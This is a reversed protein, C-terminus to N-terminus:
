GRRMTPPIEDPDVIVEVVFPHHLPFVKSLAKELEEETRCTVSEAGLSSAFGAVDLPTHYKTGVSKGIHVKMGKDVMDLAQNNMVIFLVPANSEVATAVETGHMFMCGDGTLCAIPEEPAALKAGVAYGIGHGMAGFVDDFYFGCSQKIDYHKIAYFTHSGDDGFLTTNPPLSRNITKVAAVSSLYGSGNETEQEDVAAAQEGSLVYSPADTLKGPPLAQLLHNLNAKLDGTVATTKVNMARGIFTPDADFHIIQEPFHEPKWGATSMDSLKSGCVILTDIGSEVYESAADTGGLGYAGLSLPHKSLFTGKGGPTTAVPLQFAEAFQEIEKYAGSSHVGKGLLLLPREARSILTEVEPLKTSIVHDPEPIDISFPEADALLVDAPISLHVPGKVGSFAERLAHQLIPKVLDARDIRGSYKTVSSFMATVDTGFSTSDQGIPMGLSQISPHGTFIIMPIHSAKAQAAATMLNTAGPGSTGVAIGIRRSMLSYGAAEYGAAGEHKSLVFSVGANDAAVILPVVARGPIGFMHTVGWTRFQEALISAITKM